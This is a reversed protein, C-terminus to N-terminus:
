RDPNRESEQQKPVHLIRFAPEHETVHYILFPSLDVHKPTWSSVNAMELIESIGDIAAHHGQELDRKIATGCRGRRGQTNHAVCGNPNM